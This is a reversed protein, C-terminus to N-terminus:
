APGWSSNNIAQIISLPEPAQKQMQTSLNAVEKQIADILVDKAQDETLGAILRQVPVSLMQAKTKLQLIDMDLLKRKPASDPLVALKEFQWQVAYEYFNESTQLIPYDEPPKDGLIPIDQELCWFLCNSATKPYYITYDKANADKATLGRELQDMYYLPVRRWQLTIEFVRKLGPSLWLIKLVDLNLVRDWASKQFIHDFNIGMKKFRFAEDKQNFVFRDKGHPELKYNDDAGTYRVYPLLCMVHWDEANKSTTPGLIIPIYVGGDAAYAKPTEQLKYPKFSLPLNDINFAKKVQDITFGAETLHDIIDTKANNSTKTTKTTKTTKKSM